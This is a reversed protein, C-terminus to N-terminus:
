SQSFQLSVCLSADTVNMCRLRRALEDGGGKFVVGGAGYVAIGRRLKVSMRDDEIHGFAFVALGASKLFAAEKLGLLICGAYVTGFKGHPQMAQTVLDFTALMTLRLDPAVCLLIEVCGTWATFLDFLVQLLDAPVARTRCLDGSM